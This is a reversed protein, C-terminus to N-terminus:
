GSNVSGANVLGSAITWERKEVFVSPVQSRAWGNPNRACLPSILVTRPLPLQNDARSGCSELSSNPRSRCFSNGIASSRQDSEALSSATVSSSTSPPRESGWASAM